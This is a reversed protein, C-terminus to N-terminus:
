MGRTRRLTFSVNDEYDDGTQADFEKLIRSLSSLTSATSQSTYVSIGAGVPTYTRPPMKTDGDKSLLAGLRESDAIATFTEKDEKLLQKCVIPLAEAWYKLPFEEDLIYLSAPKTFTFQNFDEDLTHQSALSPREHQYQKPLPWIRLAEHALKATRSEITDANWMKEDALERTYYFNAQAYLTKKEAFGKNSMESNYNTLTLNGLRTVLVDYNAITKEDLASRWADNLTQPMIHEISLTDDSFSPLGKRYPSNLEYMYLLYKTGKSRLTQYLDDQLLAQEFEEDTPFRFANKGISIARWFADIFSSHDQVKDLRMMVNGCFQANLGKAKCVKSRFAMSSIANIAEHLTETNITGDRQLTFLYLLLSRCKRSEMIELLFYLQKRTPPMRDPIDDPDFIFNRYLESCQKMDAFLERTKEYDSQAQLSHYYDRFAVYLNRDSVHLKRGAITIGDTRRKFILYDIFFAVMNGVGVNDEIKSWYSQYLNTQEDHSFQMLLYNRLLDVNTLDLGTSNLSEFIEQPNERQVELEIITLKDLADLLSVALGGNAIFEEILKCFLLYNQYIHSQIQSPSLKDTVTSADNGLLIHYTADDRANLHLKVRRYETDASHGSNFLYTSIEQKLDEDNISDHLAKLLLTVSTLRQQGDIISFEYSDDVKYCITGLFHENQTDVIRTIDQFLQRCNSEKWDYNRQYVPVVFIKKASLFEDVSSNHAQM